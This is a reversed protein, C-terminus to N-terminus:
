QKGCTHGNAPITVWESQDRKCRKIIADVLKAALEKAEVTWVTTRSTVQIRELEEIHRLTSTYAELLTGTTGADTDANITDELTPDIM